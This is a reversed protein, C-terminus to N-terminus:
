AQEREGSKAAPYVEGPEPLLRGVIRMTPSEDEHGTECEHEDGHWEGHEGSM